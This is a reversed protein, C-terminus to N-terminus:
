PHRAPNPLLASTMATTQMAQLVAMEYFIRTIQAKQAENLLPQVTKLLQIVREAQQQIEDPTIQGDAVAQKWSDLRQIYEVLHLAGTAQDFWPTRERTASPPSAPELTM